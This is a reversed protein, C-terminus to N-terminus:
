SQPWLPLAPTGPLNDLEVSQQRYHLFFYVSLLTLMLLSLVVMWLAFNVVPRVAATAERADVSTVATWALNAYEQKLGTDAFGVLHTGGPTTTVVYGNQRGRLTALADRVADFDESRLKMSPAVQPGAVVTGDDSVLLTTEGRGTSERSLLLFLKAVNVRANVVGLFQGSSQDFIPMGISVYNSKSRDDYLVNSISSSGRGGAYVAQWYEQKGQFYNQPKYTAAVVAGVKDTVLFELLTPDVERFGRLFDATPSTLVGKSLSDAGASTWKNELGDIRDTITADSMQLYSRDAASVADLVTPAVAISGVETVRDEIFQSVMLAADQAVAKLHAGNAAELSTVSESAVHMGILSVPVIVVILGLLLKQLSIRVEFADLSM